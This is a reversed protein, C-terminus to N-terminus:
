IQLPELGRLIQPKAEFSENMTPLAQKQSTIIEKEFNVPSQRGLEKHPKEYNYLEVARDVQRILDKYSKISRHKLYNNKIIGNVREAKGNEWAFECMSNRIKYFSTIKLFESAYYQGGGDTHMILGEPINHSRTKLSMKLSPISTAETFLRDSTSHGLIRRSFADLIFTLYYFRAGVEFYTIDSQWVQNIGNLPPHDVLLNPFRVVGSSDTTRCYRKVQQVYFGEYKCFEEFADRGMSEPLIKFYLDRCGMVPHDKRIAHIYLRLQAQEEMVRNSGRIM